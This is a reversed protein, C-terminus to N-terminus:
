EAPDQEQHVAVVETVLRQPLEAVVGGGVVTPLEGLEVVDVLEGGGAHDAGRRQHDGRDLPHELDEGTLLHGVGVVRVDVGEDRVLRDLDWYAACSGGSDKSRIM